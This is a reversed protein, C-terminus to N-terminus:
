CLTRLIKGSTWLFVDYIHSLLLTRINNIIHAQLIKLTSMALLYKMSDLFLELHEGSRNDNLLKIRMKIKDLVPVAPTKLQHRLLLHSLKESLLTM